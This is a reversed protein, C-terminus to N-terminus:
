RARRWRCYIAGAAYVAFTGWVIGPLAPVYWYHGVTVGWAWFFAELYAQRIAREMARDFKEDRM